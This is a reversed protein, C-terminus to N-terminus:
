EIPQRSGHYVRLIVTRNATRRYYILYPSATWRQARRGSRLQVTRGQLEGNLLQQIVGDLRAIEAAAARVSDQAIYRQIETLDARADRTLVLEM